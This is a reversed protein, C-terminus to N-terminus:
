NNPQSRRELQYKIEERMSLKLYQRAKEGQRMAIQNPKILAVMTDMMKVLSKTALEWDGMISYGVDNTVSQPDDAIVTFVFFDEGPPKQKFAADLVNQFSGTIKKIKIRKNPRSPRNM